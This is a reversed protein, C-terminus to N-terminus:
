QAVFLLSIAVAAVRVMAAAPVIAAEAGQLPALPFLSIMTVALGMVDSKLAVVELARRCCWPRALRGPVALLGVGMVMATLRVM